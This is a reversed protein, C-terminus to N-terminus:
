AKTRCALMYYDKNNFQFAGVESMHGKRVHAAYSRPNIQSIFTVMVPFRKEMSALSAFFVKEFVGTGRVARDVCIPGYQYSDDASLPRGQYRYRPLKEMMYAFLPWASWFQWSAAMAYCVVRGDLKAITVGNERGILGELQEATFNTTVFGDPKDGDDIYDIHYKKHLSIIGDMDSVSARTIEM